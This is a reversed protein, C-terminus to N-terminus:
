IETEQGLWMAVSLKSYRCHTGELELWLTYVFLICGKDKPKRICNNLGGIAHLGKHITSDGKQCTVHVPSVLTVSVASLCGAPMGELFVHQAGSYALCLKASPFITLLM